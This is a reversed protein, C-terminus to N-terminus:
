QSPRWRALLRMRPQPPATPAGAADVQQQRGARRLQRAPAGTITSALQWIGRAFSSRRHSVVPEGANIAEILKRGESGIKVAVSGHLHAEIDGLGVSGRSGSRNLALMIKGQHGFEESLQLFRAANKLAPVEPTFVLVIRDAEELAASTVPDPLSCTDVIIYDYHERMVKLIRAIQESSIVQARVFDDPALFAQLGSSHRVAARELFERDLDKLHPTLDALNSRSRLNLAAAVDGSYLNADVLAIRARTASRVAVALNVAITTAGVGGKSGHVAIVQGQDVDVGLRRALAARRRRELELVSLITDVMDDRGADETLYARAGALLADRAQGAQEATLLAVVPTSNFATDIKEIGESLPGRSQAVLIVDPSWNRAQHLGEEISGASVTLEMDEGHLLGRLREAQSQGDELLLVRVRGTLVGGM